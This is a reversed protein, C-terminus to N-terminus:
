PLAPICVRTPTPVCKVPEASNDYNHQLKYDAAMTGTSISTLTALTLLFKKM